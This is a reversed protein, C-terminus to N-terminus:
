FMIVSGITLDLGKRTGSRYEGAVIPRPVTGQAVHKNNWKPVRHFYRLCLESAFYLTSNPKLFTGGELSMRNPRLM